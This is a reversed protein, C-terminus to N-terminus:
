KKGEILSVLFSLGCGLLPQENTTNSTCKATAPKTAPNGLVKVFVHFMDKKVFELYIISLIQQWANIECHLPDLKQRDAFQGIRPGTTQYWQRGYLNHWCGKM